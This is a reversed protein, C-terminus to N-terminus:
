LVFYESIQTSRSYFITTVQHSMLLELHGSSDTITESQLFMLFHKMCPALSNKKKKQLSGFNLIFEIM